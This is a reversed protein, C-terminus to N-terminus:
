LLVNTRLIKKMHTDSATDRILRAQLEILDRKVIEVDASTIPTDSVGFM